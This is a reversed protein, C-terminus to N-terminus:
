SEKRTKAQFQLLDLYPLIIVSIQNVEKQTLQMNKANM